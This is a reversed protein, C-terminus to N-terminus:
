LGLSSIRANRLTEIKCEIWACGDYPASPEQLGIEEQKHAVQSVNLVLYGCLLSRVKRHNIAVQHVAVMLHM